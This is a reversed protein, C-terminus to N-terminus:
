ISSTFEQRFVICVHAQQSNLKEMLGESIDKCGPFTIIMGATCWPGLIVFCSIHVVSTPSSYFGALSVKLTCHSHNIYAMLLCLSPYPNMLLLLEWGQKTLFLSFPLALNILGWMMRDNNRTDAHPPTSLGGECTKEVNFALLMVVTAPNRCGKRLEQVTVMAAFPNTKLKYAM